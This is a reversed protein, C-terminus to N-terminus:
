RGKRSQYIVANHLHKIVVNVWLKATRSNSALNDLVMVLDEYSTVKSDHIINRLLEEVVLRFARVNQPFKKGSLMKAIGSFAVNMIEYLGSESMLSGVAGVFSMLM